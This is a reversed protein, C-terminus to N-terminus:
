CVDGPGRAFPKVAARKEASLRRKEQKGRKLAAVFVEAPLYKLLDTEPLILIGKTIKVQVMKSM